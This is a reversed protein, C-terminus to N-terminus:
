ELPHRVGTVSKLDLSNVRNIGSANWLLNEGPFFPSIM